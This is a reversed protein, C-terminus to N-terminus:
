VILHFEHYGYWSSLSPRLYKSIRSLWYCSNFLLILASYISRYVQSSPSLMAVEVSCSGILVSTHWVHWRLLNVTVTLNPLYWVLYFQLMGLYLLIYGNYNSKLCGPVAHDRQLFRGCRRFARYHM